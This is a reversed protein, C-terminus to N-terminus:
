NLPLSPPPTLITEQLHHRITGLPGTSARPMRLLRRWTTRLLSSSAREVRHSTWHLLLQSRRYALRSIRKNHCHSTARPHSSNTSPFSCWPPTERDMKQLTGPTPLGFRTRRGARRPKPQGTCPLRLWPERLCILSTSNPFWSIVCSFLFEVTAPRACPKLTREGDSGQGALGLQCLCFCLCLCFCVLFM